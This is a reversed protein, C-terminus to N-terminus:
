GDCWRHPWTMFSITPSMYVNQKLM